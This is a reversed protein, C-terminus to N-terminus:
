LRSDGHGGHSRRLALREVNRTGELLPERQVVLATDDLRLREVRGHQRHPRIVEVRQLHQADDLEPAAVERRGKAEGTSRQLLPGGRRLNQEIVAVHEVGHLAM